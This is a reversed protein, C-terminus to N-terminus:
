QLSTGKFIVLEFTDMRLKRIIPHSHKPECQIHYVLLLEEYAHACFLARVCAPSKENNEFADVYCLVDDINCQETSTSTIMNFKEHKIDRTVISAPQDLVCLDNYHPQFYLHPLCM